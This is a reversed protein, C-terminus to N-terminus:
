VQINWPFLLYKLLEQCNFSFSSGDSTLKTKILLSINLRIFEQEVKAIFLM